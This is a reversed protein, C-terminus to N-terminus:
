IHRRRSHFGALSGATMPVMSIATAVPYLYAEVPIVGPEMYRVVALRPIRHVQRGM